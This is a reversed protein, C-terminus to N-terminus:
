ECVLIFTEKTVRPRPKGAMKDHWVAAAMDNLYQQLAARREEVAKFSLSAFM